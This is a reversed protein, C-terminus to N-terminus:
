LTDRSYMSTDRVDRGTRTEKKHTKKVNSNKLNTFGTQKKHSPAYM